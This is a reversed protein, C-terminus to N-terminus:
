FSIRPMVISRELLLIILLLLLLSKIKDVLYYYFRDTLYYFGFSNIRIAENSSINCGVLEVKDTAVDNIKLECIYQKAEDLKNVFEGNLRLELYGSQIAGVDIFCYYYGNDSFISNAIGLSNDSSTPGKCYAYNDQLIWDKIVWDSEDSFYNDVLSMSIVSLDQFLDGEPDVAKLARNINYLEKDLASRSILADAKTPNVSEISNVTTGNLTISDTVLAPTSTNNGNLSSIRSM